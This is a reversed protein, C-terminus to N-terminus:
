KDAQKAEVWGVFDRKPNYDLLKLSTRMRQLKGTREHLATKDGDAMAPVIVEKGALMEALAAVLREPDGSYSRLLFPEGHSMNWWGNHPYSQYWYKGMCTESASGNHFFVALSGPKADSMVTQWERPTFGAKAINHKIEEADHKGKLDRVKKYYVLNNDKNVKEVRMVVINTSQNCISGLTYPTEVYALGPVAAVLLAALVTLPLFKRTPKM